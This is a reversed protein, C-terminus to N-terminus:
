SGGYSFSKKRDMKDAEVLGEAIMDVALERKKKEAEKKLGQYYALENLPNEFIKLELAKLKMERLKDLIQGGLGPVWLIVKPGHVRLEAPNPVSLTNEMNAKITLDIDKVIFYGNHDEPEDVRYTPDILKLEKLFGKDVVM